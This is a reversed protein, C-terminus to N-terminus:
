NLQPAIRDFQSNSWYFLDEFAHGNFRDDPLSISEIFNRLDVIRGTTADKAFFPARDTGAGFLLARLRQKLKARFNPNRPAFVTDFLPRDGKGINYINMDPTLHAGWDGAGFTNDLDWAILQWKKSDGNLWLIDNNGNALLSDWHGSLLSAATYNVINDIDLFKALDKESRASELDTILKKIMNDGQKLEKEDEEDVSKGNMYSLEYHQRSYSGPRLTAGGLNAQVLSGPVEVRAGAFRSALFIDDLEEVLHYLGKYDYYYGDELRTQFRGEPQRQEYTVYVRAYSARPALGGRRATPALAEVENFIQSSLRERALTPDNASARLNVSSVGHLRRGEYKDGFKLDPGDAAYAKKIAFNLRFQRKENCRSTNGRTKIGADYISIGDFNVEKVHGYGKVKQWCASLAKEFTLGHLRIRVTHVDRNFLCDSSKAFSEQGSLDGKSLGQRCASQEQLRSDGADTASPQKSQCACFSLALMMRVLTKGFRM